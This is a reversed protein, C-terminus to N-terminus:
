SVASPRLLTPHFFLDSPQRLPLISLSNLWHDGCCLGRSTAILHLWLLWLPSSSLFSVQMQRLANDCEKQGPATVTCEKILHNISDTVARRVLCCHSLTCPLTLDRNV